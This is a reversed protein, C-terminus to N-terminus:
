YFFWFKELRVDESNLSPMKTEVINQLLKLHRQMMNMISLHLPPAGAATHIRFWNTITFLFNITLM